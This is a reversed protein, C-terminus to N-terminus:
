KPLRIPLVFTDANQARKYTDGFLPALVALSITHTYVTGLAIASPKVPPFDLPLHTRPNKPILPRLPSCPQVPLSFTCQLTAM